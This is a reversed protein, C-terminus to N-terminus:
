VRASEETFRMEYGRERRPSDCRMGASEGGHIAHYRM